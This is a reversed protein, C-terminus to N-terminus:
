LPRDWCHFGCTGLQQNDEKRVICWRNRGKAEAHSYDRIFEKADDM